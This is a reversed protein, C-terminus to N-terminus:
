LSAYRWLHWNVETRTDLINALFFNSTRGRKWCEHIQWWIIWARRQHKRTGQCPAPWYVIFVTGSRRVQHKGVARLSTTQVGREGLEDKPKHTTSVMMVHGMFFFYLACESYSLVIAHENFHYYACLCTAHTRSTCIYKSCIFHHNKAHPVQTRNLSNFHRWVNLCNQGGDM